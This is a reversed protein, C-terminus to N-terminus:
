SKGAPSIIDFWWKHIFQAATQTLREQYMNYSWMCESSCKLLLQVSNLYGTVAVKNGAPFTKCIAASYQRVQFLFWQPVSQNGKEYQGLQEGENM